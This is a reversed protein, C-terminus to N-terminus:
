ITINVSKKKEYTGYHYTNTHSQRYQNNTNM